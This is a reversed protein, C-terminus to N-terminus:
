CAARARPNVAAPCARAATRVRITASDRDVRRRRRTPIVADEPPVPSPASATPIDASAGNTVTDATVNQRLRFTARFTKRQGPGLLGTTLCLRRGAAPQLRATSRVFTLALPARDCARLGRVPADGRNRVTIRYTILQGPLASRTQTTKDIDIDPPPGEGGGPCGRPGPGNSPTISVNDFLYGNGARAPSVLGDELGLREDPYPEVWVSEVLPEGLRDHPDAAPAYDIPLVRKPRRELARLCANTAITYLWSRLSSRGEFSALGRWARLLTEQLADEADHVSGLMRYCHAHLARRHPEAVRAFAHEEGARAAELLQHENV